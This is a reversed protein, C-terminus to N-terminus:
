YYTILSIYNMMYNRDKESILNTHPNINNNNSNPMFQLVHQSNNSGENVFKNSVLSDYDSIYIHLNLLFDKLKKLLNFVDFSVSKVVLLAGVLVMM